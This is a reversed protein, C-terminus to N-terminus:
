NGIQQSSKKLWKINISIIKLVMSCKDICMGLVYGFKFLLLVPKLYTDAVRGIQAESINIRSNDFVCLM